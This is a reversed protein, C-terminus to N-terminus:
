FHSPVTGICFSSLRLIAGTVPRNRGCHAPSPAKIYFRNFVMSRKALLVLFCSKMTALQCVAQNKKEFTLGM